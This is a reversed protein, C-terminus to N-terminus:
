VERREEEDGGAQQDASPQDPEDPTIVARRLRLQSLQAQRLRLRQLQLRRLRRLRLRQFRRTSATLDTHHMLWPGAVVAAIVAIAVALLVAIGAVQVLHHSM